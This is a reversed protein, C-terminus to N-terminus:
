NHSRSCVASGKQKRMQLLMHSILDSESVLWILYLCCRCLTEVLCHTAGSIYSGGKGRSWLGVPTCGAGWRESGEGAPVWGWM